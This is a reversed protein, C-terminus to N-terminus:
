LIAARFEYHREKLCSQLKEALVKVHPETFMSVHDGSVYHIELGGAALNSWGFNPDIIYGEGHIRLQDEVGLVTVRGPYVQLVYKASAQEHAERIRLRRIDYPVSGELAQYFNSSIKVLRHKLMYQLWPLWSKAKQWIYTPGQQLLNKLHLPVRKRFPLRETGSPAAADLMVLLAVKEGQRHLQQAMEYAVGGGFCHGGIFYPGKPQITKIEKIYHSAIDEMRTLPAQQGDLGQAQLGYFPQDADMHRALDYYSLVNGEVAHICFFPPKSGNPQIPVLSSWSATKFIPLPSSSNEDLSRADSQELQIGITAETVPALNEPQRLINAQAEVTGWQFLTALPLNKGLKKEIQWFLKVALLSHGGLAFFNDRVGISQVGLVQSWIQTLAQELEDRPAVFTVEPEQTSLDPVKLASRNVKGSPTLPLSDLFVFSSPIMYEPLKQKLIHRLEDTTLTQTPVVYAVLHKDGRVDETAMVVTERVSPHQTLAAEIEGLEIRFGRIKVQFDKRGLFEISGDPKLRGLDGTRYIRRSGCETDPLFVAQTLNPKHWYGLAIYPSRIAIEGYIDTKEGAENLLFIETEDVPYGVPVTNRSIETQKNMFYQLTVTSETPGLGNVFLCENSFHEKYLDVDTKVVEEGGLVVLRIQPFKEDGSLTSVFHRYLTPTSHYLTIKQQQLWQSLHTFGEEKINIPYLTAGNLIAAFIDMIAADFSYSSLLTLRDQDNIHLNNTYNRIFHLVNRHNQIVGKPQGTSGSTYLIYAVTDPSVLANSLCDSRPPKGWSSSGFPNLANFCSAFGNPSIEQEGEETRECSSTFSIDDINILPITGRTLEQARDLNKNNTLVASTQSDELIYVVRESPYNPDLPIYTKGVKLVGLIGAVMPADHEFLLAIREEGSTCQKRIAQAVGNAQQNLESYTWHYNKTHVAINYPYKRVQQDFRVPISQEIDQKDFTIFPNSPHVVNGRSKLYYRETETLLPLTSIRQEPNAVIGELLTQYHLLIQQTTDANFLDSNYVLELQIGHKQETVYLSLDFKSAAEAISIPEVDLGFLQLPIDGLNLMNFWVQFLPNRSTDRELQLEEVLKEFPLDQHAFADLAVQRVRGLLSRFSPTLAFNLRFVVTNIFFGILQEVEARNRGAIPSGITVDDQGSYRHLLIGFAALLTMFLTVGEQHSLTKLSASLKQPLLLSQKAGRHTQIPPRPRDTPLELVHNAGAIANKWYDLKTQLVIGSLWQRQWVAFDIYQIPLKTLPNPLGNISAEYVTALQQWLIGMSWGDSAIHHMVLVLIDCHEDIQLLTARLMLDSALNFPRQAERTLINEVQEEMASSPLKTLDMVTLEVKRAEGIVQIPSGDPSLIFNTRLVEHHAIIANMSQLLVDVKVKGKLRLPQSIVYAPTNPELQELFWLRQQAFSLPAQKPNEIRPIIQHQSADGNDTQIHAIAGALGAITPTEFLLQLPIELGFAQNCRSIVQTALLSHGGLTFFNDHIGIHEVRLVQEWIAALVSETPTRAAVFNTSRGLSYTDPAPLQGRDVKGNPNLPLTDLFVFAAPVMYEPLLDMLFDRLEITSPVEEPQAVVYAVLRKDGPVDERAMVLTQKLAPHQGLMAEIEGLEIRFGRIKVLHDIRGVFEINGDPLYRGLDGTKYLRLFVPLPSYPTPLPPLPPLPPIPTNKENTAPPAGGTPTNRVGLEGSGVGWEGSGVGLEGSGVGWEGNRNCIFKQATLEPCNLYGRALGAGGIYLEGVEGVPVPQLDEDLIYIQTNAIPRGIPAITQGTGPQCTWFTADIAAETPGYCNYLVNSLPLREFFREILEVPIAEGGISVHKLCQCNELGQEQLLVRLISPVLAIVSIHQQAITKVLYATDQHGGLRALILQAGFLLPWFIQWVSPDFSLSITQLVKDIPSL